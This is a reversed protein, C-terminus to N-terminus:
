RDRPGDYSRHARRRGDRRAHLRRRRVRRRALLDFERSSLPINDGDRWVLRKEIDMEIDFYRLSSV